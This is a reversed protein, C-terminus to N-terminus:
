RQYQRRLREIPERREEPTMYYWYEYDSDLQTNLLQEISKQTFLRNLLFPDDLLEILERLGWDAKQRAFAASAVLRTAEHPSRLWGLGVATSRNPYNANIAAAAYTKGYWASLYQLTWDIPQELHCLNCANPQNAEIMAASTPSFITHTRVVADLGENVHPMHCNMCQDGTGGATHRTHLQRATPERFTEHCKLCSADDQVATRPWVKGTARHPDHCEICSLQSYCSGKMADSHETSNWTSIGNAYTPRTGTHCRACASNVNSATRGTELGDPNKFAFLHPSQPVFAPKHTLTEIHERGGLHCAECSVGLTAAHQPAEMRIFQGTLEQLKESSLMQPPRAGDWLEPHSKAVYDSMGLLLPENLSAGLTDPMRVFMDGIPFTTHCFNCARAYVLPLPDDQDFVGRSRSVGGVDAPLGNPRPKLDQVQEWRESEPLEDHVHVVPGWSKRELWYGFPLVHDQSYYPHDPSEPGMLGRGIYYQHFRSGITQSIEYLRTLEGREYSM